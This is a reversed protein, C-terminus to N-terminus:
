KESGDAFDEFAIGLHDLSELVEDETLGEELLRRKIEKHIQNFRRYLPKQETQQLRAIEAVSIEDWYRWRFILNDAPPLQDVILRLVALVRAVLERLRSIEVPDPEPPVLMGDIVDPDVFQHGQSQPLRGWIEDCAKISPAIGKSVLTQAAEEYKMRDRLVLRELEIAIPGLRKAEASPHFKGNKERLWDTYKRRVVVFLFTKFTSIRGYKRLIACDNELLKLRTWSSFEDGDDASLRKERCVYRLVAEIADLYDWYPHNTAV